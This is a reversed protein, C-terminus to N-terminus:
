VWATISILYNGRREVYVLGAQTLINLHSSISPKSIQFHEAIEGASIDKERLLDIIKLRTPDGLAKFINNM